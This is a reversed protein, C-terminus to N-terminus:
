IKVNISFMVEPDFRLVLLMGLPLPFFDAQGGAFKNGGIDM